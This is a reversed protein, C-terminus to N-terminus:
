QLLNQNIWSELDQQLQKVFAHRGRKLQDDDMLSHGANRYVRLTLTGGVLEAQLRKVSAQVPVNDKEDLEGYAIFAPIDREDVIERWFPIPDFDHNLRWFIWYDDNTKSPWSATAASGFREEIKRRHSLYEAFGDGTEIYVFSLTTMRQLFEISDKDLGLQRYTQELEHFLTDKMPLASGVMNIVFHVDGLCAALPAVHGGQSLGVLGLQDKRLGDVDKLAEIGALSDKALDYFSSTQWNGQSQGSGRKDTLLVAVGNSVLMDAVLRAWHNNRDSTGSGQILVAAPYEGRETPMLLVAALEVDGNKYRLETERCCGLPDKQGQALAVSADFSIFAVALETFIWGKNGIRNSIRGISMYM